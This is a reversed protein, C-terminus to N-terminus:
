PHAEGEAPGEAGHGLRQVGQLLGALGRNPRPRAQAQCFEGAKRLLLGEAAQLKGVANGAAHAARGEFRIMKTVFGNCSRNAVCYKKTCSAHHGVVIDVDDLAGLRLLECKGCGYRLLGERRMQERKEIEVYEEAPVGFFVVNGDLAEAIEPDALALAAGM